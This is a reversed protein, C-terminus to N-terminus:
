PAVTNSSLPRIGDTGIDTELLTLVIANALSVEERSLRGLSRPVYRALWQWKGKGRIKRMTCCIRPMM